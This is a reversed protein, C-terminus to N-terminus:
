LFLIKWSTDVYQKTYGKKYLEYHFPVHECVVPATYNTNEIPERIKAADKRELAPVSKLLDEQWDFSETTHLASYTATIYEKTKYFAAGGFASYVPVLKKAIYRKQIKHVDEKWWTEGLYEPGYFNEQSRYAYADRYKLAKTLGNVSMVNYDNNIFKDLRKVIEYPNFYFVDPDFVLVNEYNEAFDKAKERLFNRGYAIMQIGCPIMRPKHKFPAITDIEEKTYDFSYYDVFTYKDKATKLVVKTTDTSNNEYVLVKFDSFYKNIKAFKKLTKELQKGSNKTVCLVLLSKKDKKM